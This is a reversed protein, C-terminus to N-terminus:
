FVDLLRSREPDPRGLDADQGVAIWCGTLLLTRCIVNFWILLGVLVAFSALLPNNSAGGLLSAGLVKIGFLALGGLACGRVLSWRPVHVEALFKFIAVLVLTDFVYMAGYRAITGLGSMLWGDPDGGIWSLLLTTLNSSFVTLAASVMIALMFAVALVLDRLKLLLVNRYQRVELGFIIRIARRTGTFWTVAVYVLAVGAVASSWDLTRGQLLTTLSVAGGDGTGVLGPVLLNLQEILSDLLEPRGRLVIGFVSFGIWLAAFVAFVAQYSMGAALVSGGVDTFHFFSRLPRSDRVRSWVGQGQQVLERGAASVRFAGRDRGESSPRPDRPTTMDDLPTM